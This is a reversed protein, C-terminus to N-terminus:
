IEARVFELAAWHPKTEDFQTELITSFRSVTEDGFEEPMFREKNVLMLVQSAGIYKIQEELSGECNENIEWKPSTGIGSM